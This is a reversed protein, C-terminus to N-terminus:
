TKCSQGKQGWIGHGILVGVGVLASVLVAAFLAILADGPPTYPSVTEIKSREVQTIKGNYVVCVKQEDVEIVIGKVEEGAMGIRVSQGKEINLM